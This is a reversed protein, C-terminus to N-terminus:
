GGKARAVIEQLLFTSAAGDSERVYSIGLTFPEGEPTRALADFGEFVTSDDFPKQPQFIGKLPSFDAPTPARGESGALSVLLDPNFRHRDITSVKVLARGFYDTGLQQVDLCFNPPLPAPHIYPAPVPTSLPGRFTRGAITVAM